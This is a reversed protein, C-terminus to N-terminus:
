SAYPGAPSRTATLTGLASSASERSRSPLSAAATRRTAENQVARTMSTSRAAGYMTLSNTGPASRRCTIPAPPGYASSASRRSAM